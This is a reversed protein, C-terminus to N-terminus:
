GGLAAERSIEIKAVLLASHIYVLFRLRLSTQIGGRKLGFLLHEVRQFPQMSLTPVAISIGFSCVLTGAEADVQRLSGSEFQLQGGEFEDAGNLYLVATAVRQKM